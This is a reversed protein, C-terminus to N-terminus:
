VACCDNRGRRAREYGQRILLGVSACAGAAGALDAGAADFGASEADDAGAFDTGAVRPISQRRTNANGFGTFSYAARMVAARTTASDATVRSVPKPHPSATM